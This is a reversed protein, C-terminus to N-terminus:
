GGGAFLQRAGKRELFSSRITNQRTTYIKRNKVYSASVPISDQLKDKQENALRYTPKPLCVLSSREQFFPHVPFGCVKNATQLDKRSELRYSGLSMPRCSDLHSERSQAIRASQLFSASSIRIFTLLVLLSFTCLRFAHLM